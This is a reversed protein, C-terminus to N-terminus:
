LPFGPLLGMVFGALHGGFYLGPLTGVLGGITVTVNLDVGFRDIYASVIRTQRATTMLEWGDQVLPNHPDTDQLRALIANYGGLLAVPGACLLAIAVCALILGFVVM